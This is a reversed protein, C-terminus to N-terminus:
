PMRHAVPLYLAPADPPEGAFLLREHQGPATGPDNLPYSLLIGGDAVVDLACGPAPDLRADLASGPALSLDGGAVTLPQGAVRLGLCEARAQDFTLRGGTAADDPVADQLEAPWPGASATRHALVAMDFAEGGSAPDFVLADASARLVTVAEDLDYSVGYIVPHPGSLDPVGDGWPLVALSVWRGAPASSRAEPGHVGTVVRDWAGDQDRDILVDFRAGAPVARPGATAVHWEIVLPSSPDEPDSPGYRVGVDTIDLGEPVAGATSEAPDVGVLHAARVTATIACPNGLRVDRPGASPAGGRAAVAACSAARPLAQVPVTLREGAAADDLSLWGEFAGPLAAASALATGDPARRPGLQAHHMSLRVTVEATGGAALQLTRASLALSATDGSGAAPEFAIDFTRPEQALNRVTLRREREVPGLGVSVVGFGLEAIGSDSRVLARAALAAPGVRGAGQRAVSARPGSDSRGEFVTREAHNQLLAAVDAGDLSWGAARAAQRVRAALAATTAAAAASGQVSAYAGGSGADPARLAAGFAAVQPKLGGGPAPGRAGGDVLVGDLWTRAIRLDADLTVTVPTAQALLDRLQLGDARAVMAAPLQAAAPCTRGCSPATPARNDSFMLAAVAGKAVASALKETFTCTGREILAIRGLVPQEPEAPQGDVNCATGYWALPAVIPGVDALRPLGVGEIAELDRQVAAGDTGVWAARVGWATEGDGHVATVALAHEAAANAGIALPRSGLDGAPAVVTVGGASLEAIAASLEPVAGYPRGADFLAIDIRGGDPATGPVAEGRNYALIWRAAQAALDTTVPVGQPQGYVKLAVLRVGPAARLVIGAARTGAGEAADLPDADPEPSPACRVDLPVPSPCDASYAEGSLDYGGVVVSTPFSGPEIVEPDNAAYAAETGLGGFAAHTYDVGSGVIAVLIGTGDGPEPTQATAHASSLAGAALAGAALVRLAAVARRWAANRDRLPDLAAGHIM